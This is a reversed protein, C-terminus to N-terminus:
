SRPFSARSGTSRARRSSRPLEAALQPRAEDLSRTRGPSRRTSSSSTTDSSRRSRAGSRAPSWPSPRPRSSPCWRAAPSRRFSAATRREARTTPTRTPSSRSTPARSGRGPRRHERGEGQRGRRREARRRAQGRRPHARRQGARSGHLTDKRKEYEAAIDADTPKSRRASRPRTSWSTSSAASCRRATATRTSTSTRRSTPTPRSPRARSAARRPRPRVRDHGQREQGAYERLIEPRPCSSPRRSSSATSRRAAHGRSGRGRLARARPRQRPADARVERPRHVPQEGPLLAADRDKARAGRRLGFPEPAAGVRAAADARDHLRPRQASPRPGARARALLQGPVDPPIARGPRPVPPRVRRRHDAGQRGERGGPELRGRPGLRRLLLRLRPHLGRDRRVADVQPPPLQERMTKLM